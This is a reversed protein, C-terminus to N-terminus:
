DILMVQANQLHNSQGIQPVNDWGSDDSNEIVRYIYFPLDRDRTVRPVMNSSSQVTGLGELLFISTIAEYGKAEDFCLLCYSRSVTHQWLIM